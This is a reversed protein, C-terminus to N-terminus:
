GWCPVFPEVGLVCFVGWCGVEGLFDGFEHLSVVWLGCSASGLACGKCEGVLLCEWWAESSGDMGSEAGCTFQEGDWKVVGHVWIDAITRCGM